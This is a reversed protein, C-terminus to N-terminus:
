NLISKLKDEGTDQFLPASFLNATSYEWGSAGKGTNKVYSSLKTFVYLKTPSIEEAVKVLNQLRQESVCITLVRFNNSGLEALVRRHNQYLARYRNLKEQFSKSHWKGLGRVRETSRDIELFFIRLKGKIMIGVVGDPTVTKSKGDIKVKAQFQGERIFFSLPINLKKADLELKVMFQSILFEHQQQGEKIPTWVKGTFRDNEEQSSVVGSGKRTLFYYYEGTYLMRRRNIYGERYLQNLRRYLSQSSPFPNSLVQSLKLILGTTLCYLTLRRLLFIDRDSLRM